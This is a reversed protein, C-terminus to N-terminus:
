PSRDLDIAPAPAAAHACCAVNSSVLIPAQGLSHGAPRPQHQGPQLELVPV